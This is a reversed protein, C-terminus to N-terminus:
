PAVLRDYFLRKRHPLVAVYTVVRKLEVILMDVTELVAGLLHVVPIEGLDVFKTDL